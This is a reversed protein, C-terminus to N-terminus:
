QSVVPGIKILQPPGSLAGSPSLFKWKQGSIDRAGDVGVSVTLGSFLLPVSACDKQDCGAQHIHLHPGSSAGNNGVQGILQGRSIKPRQGAPIWIEPIFKNPGSTDNANKVFTSNHPCISAPISGSKLHAYLIVQGDPLRVNVHNGAQPIQCTCPKFHECPDGDNDEDVCGDRQPTSSDKAHPNEPANRWCTMVEGDSIAYVPVGFALHTDNPPSPDKNYDDENVSSKLATWKSGNWRKLVLDRAQSGHDNTVTWYAGSPIDKPQSFFQYGPGLGSLGWASSVTLLLGLVAGITGITGITMSRNTLAARKTKMSYQM